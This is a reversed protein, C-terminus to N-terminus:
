KLLKAMRSMAPMGHQSVRVPYAEGGEKRGEMCERRGEGAGKKAERDGRKTM